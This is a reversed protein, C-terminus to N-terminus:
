NPKTVPKPPEVPTVVPKDESPNPTEPQKQKYKYYSITITTGEEVTTGASKDQEYVKGDLSKDDTEKGEKASVKLGSKNLIDTAEKVTKGSVNPVEVVKKEPGKSIYVGVESNEEVNAGAKVSQEIVFGSKVSDSFKEGLLIFKLNAKEVLEKASSESHNILNPVEVFKKEPGKSIYVGVESDKEVKTGADVSQEIVFGSKVSDSFKEGLLNFKLNAKEIMKKAAEQTQNILNPVVINEKGASIFVMVKSGKQVDAGIDPYTRAVTGKVEDSTEETAEQFVLGLAELESKADSISKGKLDPVKLQVTNVKDRGTYNALFVGCAIAAVLLAISLMAYLFISKRRKKKDFNQEKDEIDDDDDYEDDEFEDDDDEEVSNKRKNDNIPVNVPSMIRTYDDKESSTNLDINPDHLVKDLDLILEKASQYRKASDKEICKMIIDNLGQPISSNLNKPPVADDQIHKIAITVPSEGDFPVRGTVMEYMVIGLSYIDTKCDVFTGKAQEPSLYHASGMISTTFTLTATDVSKAIGFDTVKVIKDPTVMINQPKIDRHIVNNKHACDLANAVKEAIMIATQYSLKGNETIIDKLTKGNIYEMVIYNSGDQSGVDLINVINPNFLNAVATAEKKFKDVVEPKDNFEDKLVKIAVFRNLKHCKAKYVYSMGGEGIQELVEYRDGITKGIM